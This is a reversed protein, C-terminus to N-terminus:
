PSWHGARIATAWADTEEAAAQAGDVLKSELTRGVPWRRVSVRWRKSRFGISRWLFVGVSWRPAGEVAYEDGDPHREIMILPSKSPVSM